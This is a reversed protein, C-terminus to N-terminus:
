TAPTTRGRRSDRQGAAPRRPTVFFEVCLVGVFDLDDCSAARWRARGRAAIAEPVRAPCVSVDLIHHAHSNEIAGYHAFAGDLGRAAM